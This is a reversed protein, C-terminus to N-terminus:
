AGNAKVGGRNDLMSVGFDYYSRWQMGLTNFDSEASELRPVRTGNLYSIEMVPVDSPNALMYWATDSSGALSQNTGLYPSEVVEFAGAHQNTVSQPTDGGYTLTQERTLKRATVSLANPVLLLSPGILIPDGNDDTMDRFLAVGSELAAVGAIDPTLAGSAGTILNSNGGSFFSGPNSLLVTFVQRERTLAAMRGILSPLQLFAGLDDNIMMKRTLSIMAGYTELQNTYETESVSKHKLEGGPGVEDFTGVGTMRYSYTPKFDTATRDVTFRDIVSGVANYSALMRKSAVNGLIGPVSLTSFGSAAAQISRESRVVDAITGDNIRTVPSGSAAAVEAMLGHIGPNRMKASEAADVVKDGFEAAVETRPVGAEISLAAEVVRGRDPADKADAAKVAPTARSARLVELEARDASWGDRVATAAIEPHGNTAKTVAAIRDMEDAMTNRQETLSAQIDVAPASAQVVADPTAKAEASGDGTNPTDNDVVTEMPHGEPEAEATAGMGAAALRTATDPDAGIAVVSVEKLRGARVVHMPGTFTRGNVRVEAGARVDEVKEASMGISAEWPFGNRASAVFEERSRGAGSAIATLVLSGDEMRIDDSHGIVIRNDHDKLIPRARDTGKIGEFDVVVPHPWNAQFLASGTYAIMKFRPLDDGAPSGAMAEIMEDRGLLEASGTVWVQREHPKM